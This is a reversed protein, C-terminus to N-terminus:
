VTTSPAVLILASLVAAAFLVSIPLLPSKNVSLPAVIEIVPLVVNVPFSVTVPFKLTPPVNVANCVTNVDPTASGPADNFASFVAVPLANWATAPVPLATSADM